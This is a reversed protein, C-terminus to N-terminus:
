KGTNASPAIEYVTLVVRRNLRQGDLDPGGSPTRNPAIPRSSGYGIMALQDAPFGEAELLSVIRSARSGSLEWNSKFRKGQVIPNDDTFGEVRIKMRSAHKKLVGVINKIVKLSEPRLESSGLEFLLSSSFTISLGEKKIQVTVDGSRQEQEVQESIQKQLQVALAGGGVTVDTSTGTGQMYSSMARKLVNGDDILTASYLMVFFTFLLTMLDAYSILWITEDEENPPPPPAYISGPRRGSPQWSSM